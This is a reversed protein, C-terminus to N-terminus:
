QIEMAKVVQYFNKGQENAVTKPNEPFFDHHSHLFLIEVPM